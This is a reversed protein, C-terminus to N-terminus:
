FMNIQSVFSDCLKGIEAPSKPPGRKSGADFVGFDVIGGGKVVSPRMIQSVGLSISMFKDLDAVVSAAM